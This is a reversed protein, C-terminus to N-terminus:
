PFLPPQMRISKRPFIRGTLHVTFLADYFYVFGAIFSGVIWHLILVTLVLSALYVAIVALVAKFYERPILNIRDLIQPINFGEAINNSEITLCLAMPLLYAAVLLAVTMVVEIVHGQFYFLSSINGQSLNSIFFGGTFMLLLPVALYGATVIFTKMGLLILEALQDEWRVSSKDLEIINKLKRMIFGSALFHAAAFFPLLLFGFRHQHFLMSFPPILLIGGILMDFAFNRERVPARFADLIRTRM